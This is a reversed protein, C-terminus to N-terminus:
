RVIPVTNHNLERDLDLANQCVNINRILPLFVFFIPKSAFDVTTLFKPIEFEFNENKFEYKRFRPNKNLNAWLM